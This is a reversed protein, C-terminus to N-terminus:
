RAQTPACDECLWAGGNDRCLRFADCSACPMRMPPRQKHTERREKAQTRAIDRVDRDFRDVTNAAKMYHHRRKYM